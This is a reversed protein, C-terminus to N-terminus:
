NCTPYGRWDCNVVLFCLALIFFLFWFSFVGFMRRMDEDYLCELIFVGYVDVTGNMGMMFDYTDWRLLRSDYPFILVFREVM